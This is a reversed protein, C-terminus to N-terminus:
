ELDIPEDSSEGNEETSEIYQEDKPNKIVAHRQLFGEWIINSSGTLHLHDGKLDDRLYGEEDCVVANIDLYFINENDALTALAHNRAIVNDNNFIADTESKERDVNMISQIYIIADPQLERIHDVVETYKELYKETTGTGMENIGVMIYIKGYSYDNLYDDLMGMGKFSNELVKWITMSTECLFTAHDSLATYNRLGVTRSDGVFLADNFYDMTVTQYDPYGLAFREGEDGYIDASIHAKYEEYTSERYPAYRPTYAPEPSPSPKSKAIEAMMNEIDEETIRESLGLTDAYGYSLAVNMDAVSADVAETLEKTMEAKNAKLREEYAWEENAEVIAEARKSPIVVNWPARGNHIGTFVNSLYPAAKIDSNELAYVNNRGLIGLISFLLSTTIILIFLPSKKM